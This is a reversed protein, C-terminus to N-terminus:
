RGGLARWIYQVDPDRHCDFRYHGGIYPKATKILSVADGCYAAPRYRWLVGTGSRRRLPLRCFVDAGQPTVLQPNITQLTDVANSLGGAAHVVGILLVVTGILTVLGQMTDNLVSARLGGFATYLAISTGFILLGTEDSVWRPKWCARVASYVAPDDCWRVRGAFQFSALWM